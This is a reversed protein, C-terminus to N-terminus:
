EELRWVRIYNRELLFNVSGTGGATQEVGHDRSHRLPFPLFDSLPDFSRNRDACLHSLREAAIRRKTIHPLVFLEDLVGIFGRNTFEGILKEELVPAFQGDCVFEIGSAM